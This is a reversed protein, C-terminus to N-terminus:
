MLLDWTIFSAMTNVFVSFMQIAFTIMMWIVCLILYVIVFGVVYPFYRRVQRRRNLLSHLVYEIAFYLYIFLSMLWKGANFTTQKWNILLKAFDYLIILLQILFGAIFFKIKDWLRNLADIMVHLSANKINTLKDLFLHFSILSVYDYIYICEGIWYRIHLVILLDTTQMQFSFAYM